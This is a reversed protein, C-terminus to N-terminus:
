SRRGQQRESTRQTARLYSKKERPSALM